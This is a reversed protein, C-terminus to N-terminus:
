EDRGFRGTLRQLFAKKDKVGGIFAGIAVLAAVLLTRWAGAWLLMLATLAGVLACAIACQPTGPTFIKSFFGRDGARNSFDPAMSPNQSSDKDQRRRQNSFDAAMSPNRSSDKGSESM